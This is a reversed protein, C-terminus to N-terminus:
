GRPEVTDLREDEDTVGFRRVLDSIQAADEVETAAPLCTSPLIPVCLFPLRAARLCSRWKDATPTSVLWALRLSPIAKMGTKQKKNKNKKSGQIGQRKHRSELDEGRLRKRGHTASCRMCKAKRNHEAPPVTM